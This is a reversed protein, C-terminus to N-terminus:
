IPCIRSRYSGVSFAGSPLVRFASRAYGTWRTLDYNRCDFFVKRSTYIAGVDSDVRWDAGGSWGYGGGRYEEALYVRIVKGVCGGPSVAKVRGWAYGQPGVRSVTPALRQLNISTCALATAEAQENQSVSQSAPAAPKAAASSMGVLGAVLASVTVVIPWRLSKRSKRM